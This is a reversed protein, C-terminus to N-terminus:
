EDLIEIEPGKEEANSNSEQDSVMEIEPVVSASPGAASPAEPVKEEFIGRNLYFMEEYDKNIDKDGCGESIESRFSGKTTDIIREEQLYQVVKPLTIDHKPLYHGSCADVKIANGMKIIIGAAEAPQDFLVCPHNGNDDDMLIYILPRRGVQKRCEMVYMYKKGDIMTKVSAINLVKRNEYSNRLHEDKCPSWPEKNWCQIDDGMYYGAKKRRTKKKKRIKRKNKKRRGGRTRPQRQFSVTKSRPLLRDFSRVPARWYNDPQTIIERSEDFVTEELEEGQRRALRRFNDMMKLYESVDVCAASIDAECEGRRRQGAIEDDSDDDDFFDNFIVIAPCDSRVTDCHIDICLTHAIHGCMMVYATREPSTPNLLSDGCICCTDLDDIEDYKLWDGRRRRVEPVIPLVPLGRVMGGKKKRSKRKNIRRKRRKKTKKKRRRRETGKKRRRRKRTKRKYKKRGSGDQPNENLEFTERWLNMKWETNLTVQRLRGPPRNNIKGVADARNRIAKKENDTRNNYWTTKFDRFRHKLNIFQQNDHESSGNYSDLRRALNQIAYEIQYDM